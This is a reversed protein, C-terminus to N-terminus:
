GVLPYRDELADLRGHHTTVAVDRDDRAVALEPGRLQEDGRSPRWACGVEAQLRDADLGAAAALDDDAIVQTRGIRPHPRGAVDCTMRLEDLLAPITLSADAYASYLLM